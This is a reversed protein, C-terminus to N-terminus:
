RAFRLVIGAIIALLLLALIVWLAIGSNRLFTSQKKEVEVTVTETHNRLENIISDQLHIINELSDEKCDLDLILSGGSHQISTEANIREGQLVVLQDLVVNYASDCYLLARVSASDAKTIITTDRHHIEVTRIVEIEKVVPQQSKCGVFALVIIAFLIVWIAASVAKLGANFRRRDYQQIIHGYNKKM